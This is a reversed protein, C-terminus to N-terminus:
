TVLRRSRSSRIPGKKEGCAALLLLCSLAVAALSILRKM